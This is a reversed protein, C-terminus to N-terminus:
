KWYWATVRMPLWNTNHGPLAEELRAFDGLPNEGEIQKPNTVIAAKQMDSGSEPRRPVGGCLGGGRAEPGTGQRRLVIRGNALVHVYDPVIYDLLRQYHTIVLM